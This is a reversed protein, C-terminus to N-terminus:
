YHDRIFRLSNHDSKENWNAQHAVNRGLQALRVLENCEHICIILACDLGFFFIVALQSALVVISEFCIAIINLNSLTLMICLWQGAVFLAEVNLEVVLSISLAFIFSFFVIEFPIFTFCKGIEIVHIELHSGILSIKGNCIERILYISIALFWCSILFSCVRANMQQSSDSCSTPM